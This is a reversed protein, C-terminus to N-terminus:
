KTQEEYVSNIYISPNIHYAVMESRWKIINIFESMIKTPLNEGLNKSFVEEAVLDPVKGRPGDAKSTCTAYLYIEYHWFNCKTPKHEIRTSIEYTENKNGNKEKIPLIKKISLIDSIRFGFYGVRKNYRLHRYPIVSTDRENWGDKALLNAKFDVIIRSDNRRYVSVLNMSMGTMFRKPIFHKGINQILYQKDYLPVSKESTHLLYFDNFNPLHEDFDKIYDGHPLLRVPYPRKRSM